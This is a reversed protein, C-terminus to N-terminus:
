RTSLDVCGRALKRIVEPPIDTEFIQSQKEVAITSGDKSEFLFWPTIPEGYVADKLDIHGLSSPYRSRRETENVHTRVKTHSLVVLIGGLDNSAICHETASSGSHTVQVAFLANPKSRQATLDIGDASYTLFRVESPEADFLASGPELAESRSWWGSENMTLSTLAVGALLGTGFLLAARVPRTM